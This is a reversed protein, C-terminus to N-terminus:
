RSVESAKILLKGLKRARKSSLVICARKVGDPSGSEDFVELFVEGDLQDFVDIEAKGTRDGDFDKAVLSEHLSTPKSM